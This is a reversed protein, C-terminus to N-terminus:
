ADLGNHLTRARSALEVEMERHLRQKRRAEARADRETALRQAQVFHQRPLDPFM